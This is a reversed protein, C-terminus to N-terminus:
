FRDKPIIPQSWINDTPRFLKPCGAAQDINEASTTKQTRQQNTTAIVTTSFTTTTTLITTVQKTTVTTSSATTFTTTKDEQLTREQQAHSTTSIVTTTLTREIQETVEVTTPNTGRQLETRPETRAKTLTSRDLNDKILM